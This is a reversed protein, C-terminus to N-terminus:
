RVWYLLYYFVQKAMSARGESVLGELESDIFLDCVFRNFIFLLNVANGRGDRAGASGPPVQEGERVLDSLCLFCLQLCRVQQKADVGDIETKIISEVMAIRDNYTSM